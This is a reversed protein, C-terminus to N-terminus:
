PTRSNEAIKELTRLMQQNIQYLDGTQGTGIALATDFELSALQRKEASGYM